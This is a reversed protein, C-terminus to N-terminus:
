AHGVESTLIDVFTKDEGLMATLRKLNHQRRLSSLIQREEKTLEEWRVVRYTKTSTPKRKPIM